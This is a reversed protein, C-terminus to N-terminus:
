QSFTNQEMQLSNDIQTETEFESRDELRHFQENATNQKTINEERDKLSLRVLITIIAGFFLGQIAGVFVQNFINLLATNDIIFRLNSAISYLPLTITTSVLLTVIWLWAHKVYRRLVVYQAFGLGLITLVRSASLITGSSTFNSVFGQGFSLLIMIVMGIFSAILWKYAMWRYQFKFLLSQGIIIFITPTLSAFIFFSAWFGTIDTMSITSILIASGLGSAIAHIITSLFIFQFASVRQTIERKKKM